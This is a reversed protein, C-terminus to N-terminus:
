WSSIRERTRLSSSATKLCVPQGHRENLLEITRTPPVVQRRRERLGEIKKLLLFVAAATTRDVIQTAPEATTPERIRPHPKILIRLPASEGVLVTRLNNGREIVEGATVYRTYLAKRREPAQRAPSPRRVSVSGARM